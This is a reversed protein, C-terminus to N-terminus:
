PIPLVILYIDCELHCQHFGLRRSAQRSSAPPHQQDLGTRHHLWQLSWLDPCFSDIIADSNSSYLISVMLMISIYRAVVNTTAASIIFCAVALWLPLTVHWFREGTKDAHWANALTTIIGLLYPPCTLLLTEIDSRNLTKVVTPFFNTISAASVNGFLM